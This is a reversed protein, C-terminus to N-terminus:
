LLFCYTHVRQTFPYNTYDLMSRETLNSSIMLFLCETLSKVAKRFISLHLFEPEYFNERFIVTLRTEWPVSHRRMGSRVRSNREPCRCTLFEVPSHNKRTSTSPSLMRKSQLKKHYQFSFM